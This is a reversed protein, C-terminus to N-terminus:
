SHISNLCITFHTIKQAYKFRIHSDCVDRHAEIVGYEVKRLYAPRVRCTLIYYFLSVM